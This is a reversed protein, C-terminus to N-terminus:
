QCAVIMPGTLRKKLDSATLTTKLRIVEALHELVYDSMSLYAKKSSLSLRWIRTTDEKQGDVKRGVIGELWGLHVERSPDVVWVDIGVAADAKVDEPVM